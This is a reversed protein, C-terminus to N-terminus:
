DYIYRDSIMYGGDVSITTGTIFDSAQSALFIITGVIDEPNGWRGCPTQRKIDNGRHSDPVGKNMDTKFWGPLIANVQINNPGLECALSRTFGLVASKSTAYGVSNPHGFVSYASGINIIKGGNQNNIMSKVCYKSCLYMGKLNTNIINDWDKEKLYILEHSQYIGANNILVDINGYTNIIDNIVKKVENELRVDLKYVNFGDDSFKRNKKESRGTIIVNTGAKIFAKAMAAGLGSNGGTILITKGNVSFYDFM